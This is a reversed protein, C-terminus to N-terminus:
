KKKRKEKRQILPRHILSFLEYVLLRFSSSDPEEVLLRMFTMEMWRQIPYTHSLLGRIVAPDSYVSRVSACFGNWDKILNEAQRRAEKVSRGELTRYYDYRNVYARVIMYYVPDIYAAANERGYFSVYYDKVLGALTTMETLKTQGAAKQM